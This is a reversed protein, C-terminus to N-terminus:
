QLLIPKCGLWISITFSIGLHESYNTKRQLYVLTVHMPSHSPLSSFWFFPSLVYAVFYLIGDKAFLEMYQNPQWQKTAKYMAVSEKLTSFVSLVLLMVSLVIRLATIGLLLHSSANSLSFNCVSFELIQIITVTSFPLILCPAV